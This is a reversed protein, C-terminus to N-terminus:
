KFNELVNSASGYVNMLQELYPQLIYYAGIASGVIFIWYLMSMIRQLRMGRRISHLIQNNEQALEVSKNLLEREEPSM